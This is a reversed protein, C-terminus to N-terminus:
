ERELSDYLSGLEFHARPEDPHLEVLRRLHAVAEETRRERALAWGAEVHRDLEESDSM